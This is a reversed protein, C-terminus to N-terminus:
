SKFELKRLDSIRFEPNQMGNSQGKLHFKESRGEVQRRGEESKGKDKGKDDRLEREGVEM